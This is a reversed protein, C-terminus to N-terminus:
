PRAARAFRMSIAQGIGRAGGMILFTKDRLSFLNKGNSDVV